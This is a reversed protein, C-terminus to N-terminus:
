SFKNNNNDTSMKISSKERIIIDNWDIKPCPIQSENIWPLFDPNHKSKWKKYVLASKHIRRIVNPAM